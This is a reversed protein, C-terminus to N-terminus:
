QVRAESGPPLLIDVGSAVQAAEQLTIMLALVSDKAQKDGAKAASTFAALGEIVEAARTRARQRRINTVAALEGELQAIRLKLQQNENM